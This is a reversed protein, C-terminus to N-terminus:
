FKICGSGDSTFDNVVVGNLEVVVWMPFTLPEQTKCTLLSNNLPNVECTSLEGAIFVKLAEAALDSGPAALRFSILQMSKECSTVQGTLLPSPATMSATASAFAQATASAEVTPTLPTSTILQTPAPATVGACFKADMEAKSATYLPSSDSFKESLTPLRVTGDLCQYYCDAGWGLFGYNTYNQCSLGNPSVVKGSQAYFKCTMLLLASFAFFLKIKRNVLGREQHPGRTNWVRSSQVKVADM